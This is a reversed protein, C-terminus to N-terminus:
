NTLLNKNVFEKRRRINELVSENKRIPRFLILPRRNIRGEAFNRKHPTHIYHTM